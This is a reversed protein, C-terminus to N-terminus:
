STRWFGCGCALFAGVFNCELLLLITEDVVVSSVVLDGGFDGAETFFIDGSVVTETDGTVAELLIPGHRLDDVGDEGESKTVVNFAQEITPNTSESALIEREENPYRM